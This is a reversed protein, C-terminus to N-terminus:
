LIFNWARGTGRGSAAQNAKASPGSPNVRRGKAKGPPLGEPMGGKRLPERGALGGGSPARGARVAKAGSGGARFPRTAEAERGKRPTVPIVAPAHRAGARPGWAARWGRLVGPEAAM